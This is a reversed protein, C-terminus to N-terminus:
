KMEKSFLWVSMSMIINVKEKYASGLLQVSKMDVGKMGKKGDKSRRKKFFRRICFGCIGLIVLLILVFIGVIGWGPIHTKEALIEKVNDATKLVKEVTSKTVPADTEDSFSEFDFILFCTNYIQFL